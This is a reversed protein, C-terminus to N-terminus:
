RLSACFAASLLAHSLGRGQWIEGFDVSDDNIFIAVSRGLAPAIVNRVQTGAVDGRREILTVPGACGALPAPFSWAGLAQYGLKPDGQWLTVQSTPSLLRGALLARDFLALDRASGTLAGAAGFTAVNIAPYPKGGASYGIAAAGDPAMRLTRLGLPRGIRATVLAAFPMGSVRELIAALVLYDCNNYAFGAGAATRAAGACLGYARARDGIRAGTETYFAPVGRADEATDNPNPLGSQHQLLQRVTIGDGAAGPWDPLYRRITGDLTLTGADVQQMALVAAVQKTVSAWLWREGARHPRSRARDAAGRVRDVVPGDVDALVIEGALGARAAVAEMRDMAAAPDPMAAKPPVEAASPAAVVMLSMAACSAAALLGWVGGGKRM